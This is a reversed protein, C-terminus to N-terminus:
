QKKIMKLSFWGLLIIIVLMIIWLWMKNQFLAPNDSKKVETIVQENGPFAATINGPIKDTFNGIDYNPSSAAPNGYILFFDAKETFRTILEYLNGKVSVSDITLPQNDFNSIAVKFKNSITNLFKFENNELSGLMGSTIDSYNYQWGKPTNISDTVCMINVPRYYDYHNHVFIKISSVPVPEPLSIEISTLKNDKQESTRITKFEYNKYYGEILSQEIIRADLLDPKIDSKITIRFYSYRSDPFSITTFKYDTIGNQISLIRYNDKITFWEKQDNSGELKIRWDFNKQEFNLVIQNVPNGAPVEFTYFYGTQNYTQNLLKFQIETRTLKDNTQKLIYPAEITDKNTIIGIIRIDSLDRKLKGYIDDPLIIKHWTKSVGNIERKYKYNIIQGFSISGCLIFIYLLIKTRM